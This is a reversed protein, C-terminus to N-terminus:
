KLIGVLVYRADNYEYTCTSLTVVRDQPTPEVMSTFTSRAGADELWLLYEEDTAFELKWADDNMNTVYGAFFELKYNGQPTMILCTPHADYFAQDRYKTIQAFMSGNQMNHGYLITNRDSLDAENRYDMFISGAGNVSGDFLRNLYYSNDNGKVVPYHINTGEIYIWAVIDPNIDRLAEFDVQPWVTDEPPASSEETERSADAEDDALAQTPIIREPAPDSAQHVYQTLDRYTKEGARYQSWGQLLRSGFFGTMGLFAICLLLLPIRRKM